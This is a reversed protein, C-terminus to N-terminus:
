PTDGACKSCMVGAEKDDPSAAYVPAGCESCQLVDNEYESVLDDLISRIAATIWSNVTDRSARGKDGVHYAIAKLEDDSFEFRHVVVGRTAM